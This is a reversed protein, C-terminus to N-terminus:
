AELEKDKWVVKGSIAGDPWPTTQWKCAAEVGNQNGLIVRHDPQRAPPIGRYYGLEELRVSLKHWTVASHRKGWRQWQCLLLRYWRV